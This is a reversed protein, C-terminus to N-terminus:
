FGSLQQVQLLIDEDTLVAVAFCLLHPLRFLHDETGFQVPDTYLGLRNYGNNILFFMLMFSSDNSFLMTVRYPFPQDIRRRALSSFTLRSRTSRTKCPLSFLRSCSMCGTVTLGFRLEFSSGKLSVM